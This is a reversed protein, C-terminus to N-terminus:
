SGAVARLHRGGFLVPTMTLLGFCDGCYSACLHLPIAESASAIVSGLFQGHVEGQAVLLTGPLHRRALEGVLLDARDREFAVGDRGGGLGPVPVDDPFGRLEAEARECR